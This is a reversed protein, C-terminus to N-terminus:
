HERINEYDYLNYIQLNTTKINTALDFYNINQLKVLTTFNVKLTSSNTTNFWPSTGVSVSSSNQISYVTANTLFQSVKEEIIFSLTSTNNESVLALTENLNWVYQYGSLEFYSIM